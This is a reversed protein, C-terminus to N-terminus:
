KVAGAMRSTNLTMEGDPQVEASPMDILGVNGILNVSPAMEARAIQALCALAIGVLLRHLRSM